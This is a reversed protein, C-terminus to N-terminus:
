FATVGDAPVMPGNMQSASNNRAVLGVTLGVIVGAGVIGGLTGWFWGRKYFPKKEPAKPPESTTLAALLKAQDAARQQEAAKRDQEQLKITAKAVSSTVEERESRSLKSQLARNYYGLADRPRDALYHCRGISILLVPEPDIQYAADFEEIAKDYNKETYSQQAEAVHRDFEKSPKASAGGAVMLVALTLLIRLASTM